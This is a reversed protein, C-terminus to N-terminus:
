KKNRINKLATDKDPNISRYHSMGDATEQYAYWITESEYYDIIHKNTTTCKVLIIEDDTKEKAKCKLENSTVDPEFALTLVSKPIEQLAYREAEYGGEIRGGNSCMNVFIIILVIISIIGSIVKLIDPKDSSNEDQNSTKRTIPETSQKVETKKSDTDRITANRELKKENEKTSNNEYTPVSENSDRKNQSTISNLLELLQKDKVINLEIPNGGFRVISLVGNSEDYNYGKVNSYPIKILQDNTNIAFSEDKIKLIAEEKNEGSLLTANLKRM